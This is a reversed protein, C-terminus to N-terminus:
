DEYNARRDAGRTRRVMVVGILEVGKPESWDIEVSKHAGFKSTRYRVGGGGGGGGGSSCFRCNPQDDIPARLHPDTTRARAPNQAPYPNTQARWLRRAGLSIQRTLMSSTRM